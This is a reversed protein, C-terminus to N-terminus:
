ILLMKCILLDNIKLIVHSTAWNGISDEIEFSFEATKDRNDANSDSNKKQSREVIM